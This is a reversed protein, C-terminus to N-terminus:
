LLYAAEPAHPSAPTLAGPVVLKQYPVPIAVGYQASGLYDAEAGIRRMERSFRVPEDAPDRYTGHAHERAIERRTAAAYQGQLAPEVVRADLVKQIRALDAPTLADLVYPLTSRLLTAADKANLSAALKRVASAPDPM